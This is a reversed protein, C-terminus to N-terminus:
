KRNKKTKNKLHKNQKKNRTIRTKRTLTKKYKLIKKTNKNSKGGYPNEAGLRLQKRDQPVTTKMSLQLKQTNTRNQQELRQKELLLGQGEESEYEDPEKMLLIDTDIINTSTTRMQQSILPTKTKFNLFTKTKKFIDSPSVVEWSNNKQIQVYKDIFYKYKNNETINTLEEQLNTVMDPITTKNTAKDLVEACREFYYKFMEQLDKLFEQEEPTEVSHIQEKKERMKLEFGESDFSSDTKNKLLDTLVKLRSEDKGLKGAAERQAKKIQDSHTKKIDDILWEPSKVPTFYYYSSDSILNLNAANPQKQMLRVDGLVRSSTIKTKINGDNKIFSIDLPSYKLYTKYGLRKQSSPNVIVSCNFKIDLSVLNVPFPRLPLYRVACKFNQKSTDIRFEIPVEGLSISYQKTFNFYKNKFIFYRLMILIQTICFIYYTVSTKNYYLKADIDSIFKVSEDYFAFADGGVIECKTLYMNISTILYQLIKRFSVPYKCDSDNGGCISDLVLNSGLKDQFENFRIEKGEYKVISNFKEALPLFTRSMYFNKLIKNSYIAPIVVFVLHLILYQINAQHADKITNKLLYIKFMEFRIADIEFGKDSKRETFSKSSFLIGLYFFLGFPSL